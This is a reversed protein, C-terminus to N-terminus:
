RTARRAFREADRLTGCGQMDVIQDNEITLVQYRVERRGEAGTWESSGIIRHEGVHTFEPRVTLRQGGRKEIQFRL